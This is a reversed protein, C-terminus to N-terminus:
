ETKKPPDKFISDCTIESSTLTGNCTTELIRDGPKTITCIIKVSENLKIVDEATPLYGNHSFSHDVLGPIKASNILMHAQDLPAMSKVGSTIHSIDLSVIQLIIKRSVPDFSAYAAGGINLKVTENVLYEIRSVGLDLLSAKKNILENFLDGRNENVESFCIGIRLIFLLGFVLVNRKM